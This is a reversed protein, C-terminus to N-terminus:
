EGAEQEDDDGDDTFPLSDKLKGLPNSGTPIADIGNDKLFRIAASIDAATAEGSNLKDALNEAVAAHLKELAEISAKNHNSSM